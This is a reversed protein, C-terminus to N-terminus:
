MAVLCTDEFSLSVRFSPKWNLVQIWIRSELIPHCFNRGIENLKEIRKLILYIAFLWLKHQVEEKKLRWHGINALLARVRIKWNHTNDFDTNIWYKYKQRLRWRQSWPRRETFFYNKLSNNSARSKPCSQWFIQLEAFCSM